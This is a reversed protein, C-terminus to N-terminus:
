IDGGAFKNLTTEEMESLTMASVNSILLYLIIFEYALHAPKIDDIASKLGTLDDPIGLISTFQIRIKGDTFSAEVEGNKWADCVSQILALGHKGCGRFRATVASRRKELTDSPTIGLYKEWQTIRNESATGIFGDDQIQEVADSALGIESEEAAMIAQLEQISQMFSPLYGIM